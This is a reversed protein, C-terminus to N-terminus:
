KEKYRRSYSDDYIKEANEKLEYLEKREEFRGNKECFRDNKEVHFTIYSYLMDKITRFRIEMLNLDQENKAIDIQSQIFQKRESHTPCKRLERYVSEYYVLQTEWDTPENLTIFGWSALSRQTDKSFMRWLEKKNGLPFNEQFVEEPNRAVRNAIKEFKRPSSVDKFEQSGASSGSVITGYDFIRGWGSQNFGVASIQNLPIRLYRISFVGQKLIIRQDTVVFEDTFYKILPSILGIIGVIGLAIGLYSWIKLYSFIALSLFVLFFVSPLVFIKWHTRARHAIREDPLLNDKVYGM